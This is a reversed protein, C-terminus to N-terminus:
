LCGDKPRQCMPLIPWGSRTPNPRHRGAWCCIRRLWRRGTRGKLQAQRMLREVRKHNCPRGQRRLEATIRPSGYRGRKAEFVAKIEQTLERNELDRLTEQGGRWAYYGSRTVGLLQCLDRVPHTTSLEDIMRYRV